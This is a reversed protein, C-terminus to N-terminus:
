KPNAGNAFVNTNPNPYAPPPDVMFCRVASARADSNAPVAAACGILMMVVGAPENEL